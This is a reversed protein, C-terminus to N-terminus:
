MFSVIFGGFGKGLSVLPYCAVNPMKGEQVQLITKKQATQCHSASVMSSSGLYILVLRKLAPAKETGVM